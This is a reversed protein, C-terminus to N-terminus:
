TRVFGEHMGDSFPCLMLCESADRNARVAMSSEISAFLAIVGILVPPHDFSRFSQNVSDM